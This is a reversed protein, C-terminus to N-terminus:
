DEVAQYVLARFKEWIDFDSMPLMNLMMQGTIKEDPDIWYISCFAGGGSFTGASMPTQTSGKETIVIFGFGIKNYKLQGPMEFVLDGIQNSRMLRISSRSLVRKGKYVGDNVMMQLFNAYDTATCSLGAGGSYYTGKFSPYATYLGGLMDTQDSLKVLSGPETNSYLPVVRKKNQEPQYFWADNMGLPDFIREKFFQSLSMGSVVEIVRGLVDISLGYTFKAGPQHLLPLGGLTNIQDVLTIKSDTIGIGGLVGYKAYLARATDGGIQAYGIGSTHTLLDRLTVSRNAPMTTFSTDKFNFEKIVKPSKFSPIYKEIPDDILLKGEEYLIMIGTCTIAKTQSAIRFIADTKMPINNEVDAYGFAKHYVMQNNRHVVAVVGNITKNKIYYDFMRDLMSLRTVSMRAEKYPLVDQAHLQYISIFLIFTFITTFFRM